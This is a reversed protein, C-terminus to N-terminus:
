VRFPETTTGVPFTKQVRRSGRGPLRTCVMASNKGVDIAAVRALQEEDAFLEVVEGDENM